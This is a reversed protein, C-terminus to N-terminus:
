PNPKPSGVFFFRWLLTLFAIGVIGEVYLFGSRRLSHMGEAFSHERGAGVRDMEGWVHDHCVIWSSLRMTEHTLGVLSVVALIALGFAIIRLERSMTNLDCTVFTDSRFTSALRPEILLFQIPMRQRLQNPQRSSATVGQPRGSPLSRARVRAPELRANQLDIRLRSSPEDIPSLRRSTAAGCGGQKNM